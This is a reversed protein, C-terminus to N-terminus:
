LSWKEVSHTQLTCAITSAHLEENFASSGVADFDGLRKILNARSKSFKKDIGWERPCNPTSL